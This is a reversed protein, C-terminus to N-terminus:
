ARGALWCSGARYRGGRGPQGRRLGSLRSCKWRGSLATSHDCLRVDWWMARMALFRPWTVRSFEVSPPRPDMRGDGRDAALDDFGSGGPFPACGYRSSMRSRPSLRGCRTQLRAARPIQGFTGSHFDQFAQEVEARSNM